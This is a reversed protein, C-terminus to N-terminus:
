CVCVCVEGAICCSIGMKRYRDFQLVSLEHASHSVMCPVNMYQSTRSMHPKLISSSGTKTAEAKM